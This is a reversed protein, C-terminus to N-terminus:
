LLDFKDLKQAVLAGIDVHAREFAESLRGSHDFTEKERSLETIAPGGPLVPHSYLM